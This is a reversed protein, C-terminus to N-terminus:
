PRLAAVLLPRWRIGQLLLLTGALLLATFLSETLVQGSLLIDVPEVAMLAAAALAHPRQLGVGQALQYVMPVKIASVLAQLMLVVMVNGGCLYLLAPYGPMKITDPIDLPHFMSYVGQRLNEALTLYMGPDHRLQWGLQAHYLVFAARMLLGLAFLGWLRRDMVPLPTSESRM